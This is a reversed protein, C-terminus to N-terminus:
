FTEREQTDSWFNLILYKILAIWNGGVSPTTPLYQKWDHIDTMRDIWLPLPAMHDNDMFGQVESYPIGPGAGGFILQVDALGTSVSMLHGVSSVQEFKNVQSGGRHTVDPQPWQLVYPKCAPM